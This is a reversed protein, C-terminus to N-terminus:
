SPGGSGAKGVRSEAAARKAGAPGLAEGCRGCYLAGTGNLHGCDGCQLGKRLARRIEEIEEELERSAREVAPDGGGPPEDGLHRLAEHSLEARLTEYDHGDLKGTARDYELDRLATLAVRRQAAREDHDDEGDYLPSGRGSFVPELLYLMVGAALLVGGLMVSM